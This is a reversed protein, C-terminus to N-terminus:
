IDSHPAENWLYM